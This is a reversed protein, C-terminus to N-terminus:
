RIQRGWLDFPFSVGLAFSSVKLQLDGELKTVVGSASKRKSYTESKYETFLFMNWPKYVIFSLEGKFGSGSYISQDANSKMQAGIIMGGFLRFANSFNLGAGVVFQRGIFSENKGAESEFNRYNGVFEGKFFKWTNQYGVGIGGDFASLSYSEGLLTASGSINISTHPELLVGAMSNHIFLIVLLIVHKM